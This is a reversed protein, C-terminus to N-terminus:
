AKMISFEGLFDDLPQPDVDMSLEANQMAWRSFQEGKVSYALPSMECSKLHSLIDNDSIETDYLVKDFRLGYLNSPISANVMRVSSGTDFFIEDIGRKYHTAPVSGERHQKQLLLAFERMRKETSFAFGIKRSFGSYCDMLADAISESTLTEM